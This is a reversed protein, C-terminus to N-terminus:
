AVGVRIRASGTAVRSLVFWDLVALGLIVSLLLLELRSEGMETASAAVVAPRTGSSRTRLDSEAADQFTVGVHALVRGDRELRHFGPTEVEDFVVFERAPHERRSAEVRPGSPSDIAAGRRATPADSVVGRLVFPAGDDDARLTARWTFTAGVTLNTAAAGPLERRREEIVNALFIPWDPSRQLSSRFPDFDFSIVRRAGERDETVLPLNGASVLPTGALRLAPDASWVLGELTTGELLPHRREVLFPGIFDKREGADRTPQLVVSWTARSNSATRTLLVHATSPDPALAAEDVLAIWRALPTGDRGDLGLARRTDDDLDSAVGVVRPPRPALFAADDITLADPDIRVAIGPAGDPLDFVLSERAGSAVTVARPASIERGEEDYLTVHTTREADAYSALTVFLRERRAGDVNMVSRTASAVALNDLPEGVALVDVEPPAADDARHDTVCLVRGGGALQLALAITPALDHHMAAPRWDGLARLAEEPYAAPGAITRPRPGSAVLSVRSGRPLERIRQAVVDAGKERASRGDSGRAEMSASGDLAVVLHEGGSGDCGRPGALLLALLIAALLECALSTTARLRDRKRGSVPTTDDQAWLFLASVVHPRFRRRFIHLALIAPVALLALFGLPNQFM